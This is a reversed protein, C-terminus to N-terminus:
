NPLRKYEVEIVPATNGVADVPPTWIADNPHGADGAAEQAM